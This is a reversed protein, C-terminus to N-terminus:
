WISLLTSEDQGLGKSFSSPDQYAGMQGMGGGFGSTYAPFFPSLGQMLAMARQMRMFPEDAMQTAAAYQNAFAADQIGRGMQGLGGLMGIQGSLM